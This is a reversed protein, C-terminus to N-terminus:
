PTSRSNWRGIRTIFNPKRERDLSLRQKIREEGSRTVFELDLDVFRASMSPASLEIEFWQGKANLMMYSRFALDRGTDDRAKNVRVGYTRFAYRTGISGQVSLSDGLVLAEHVAHSVSGTQVHACGVTFLLTTLLLQIIIRTM